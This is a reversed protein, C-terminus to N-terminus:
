IYNKELKFDLFDSAKQTYSFLKNQYHIVLNQFLLLPRFIIMEFNSYM